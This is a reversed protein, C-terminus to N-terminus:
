YFYAAVVGLVFGLMACLIREAIVDSHSVYRIGGNKVYSARRSASVARGAERLQLTGYRVPYEPPKIRRRAVVM